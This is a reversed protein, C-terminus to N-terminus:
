TQKGIGHWDTLIADAQHRSVTYLREDVGDVPDGVDTVHETVAHGCPLDVQRTRLARLLRHTRQYDHSDVAERYKDILTDVAASQSVVVSVREAEDAPSESVLQRGKANSLQETIHSQNPRRNQLRRHYTQESQRVTSESLAIWNHREPSHQTELHRRMMAVQNVGEAYVREAPTQTGAREDRAELQWVTVSGGAAGRKYQRNCRGAAKLLREYPALDRFVSAFSIEIGAEVFDTTVTVVRLAETDAALLEQVAELLVRRDCPRHRSTLPCVVVAPAEAQSEEDVARTAAAQRQAATAVASPDPQVAEVGTATPECAERYVDHLNVVPLGAETVTEVVRDCLEQTSAITNCIALVSEAPDRSGTPREGSLGEADGTTIEDVIHAAGTTHSLPSAGAASPAIEYTVRPPVSGTDVEALEATPVSDPLELPSQTPSTVIVRAHFETVLMELVKEVAPQWSLPVAQPDGLIITSDYLSPIRLAQRRTPGVLTELLQDMTTLTLDTLWAADLNGSKQSLGSFPESLEPPDTAPQLADVGPQAVARHLGLHDSRSHPSLQFVDRVVSATQDLAARNPLAYVVTGDVGASERLRLATQLATVSTNRAAPQTLTYVGPAASSQESRSLAAQRVREREADLQGALRTSASSQESLHADVARSTARVDPEVATGAVALSDCATLGGWVHLLDRYADFETFEECPSAIGLSLEDRTVAGAFATAVSGSAVDAAFEACTISSLSPLQDGGSVVARAGQRLLKTATEPYQAHIESVGTAVTEWMGGDGATGATTDIVHSRLYSKIDPLTGHHRAVALAAIASTYDDVGCRRLLWYTAYAGVQAHTPGRQPRRSTPPSTNGLRHQVAPKLKGFDHTWGLAAVLPRVPTGSSLRAHSAIQDTAKSAVTGAHNGLLEPSDTSGAPPRAWPQSAANPTVDPQQNSM